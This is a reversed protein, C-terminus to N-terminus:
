SLGTTATTPTPGSQQQFLVVSVVAIWAIVVFFAFFGVPTLSVIGLLFAVWGLWAPLVKTRLIALSSALLLTGLGIPFGLFFNGYLVSLTQTVEAPVDGVSEAVAFQISSDVAATAAFVIGGAYAIASLRGTGGEGARLTSRLSGLFWLFPVISLAGIFAGAVQKSDNDAWFDVVKQTSDDTDVSDFGTVIISAVLLAVALLGSLPAYRAWSGSVMLVEKSSSLSLTREATSATTRSGPLSELHV